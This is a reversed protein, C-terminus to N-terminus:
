SARAVASRAVTAVNGIGQIVLDTQVRTALLPMYVHVYMHWIYTDIVDLAGAGALPERM